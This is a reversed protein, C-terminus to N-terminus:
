PQNILATIRDEQNYSSLLHEFYIGMGPLGIGLFTTAYQNAPGINLLFDKPNKLRKVGVWPPGAIPILYARLFQKLYIALGPFSTQPHDTEVMGVRIM